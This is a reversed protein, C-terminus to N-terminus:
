SQQSLAKHFANYSSELDFLLQRIQDEDLEDSAKMRNLIVLWNKVKTKGEFDPGLSVVKNLGDLLEVLLPQIQDVAVMKLRLSDMATIFYQVCEAIKQGVVPAPAPTPHIITAPVGVVILREVAAKCDLRYDQIFKHIDTQLYGAATKYQNILKWCADTYETPSIADRIFAKELYETTKIISYLEALNDYTEREKVNNWLKIPENSNNSTNVFSM